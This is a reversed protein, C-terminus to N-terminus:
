RSGGVFAVSGVHMILGKDPSAATDTAVSVLLPLRIGIAMRDRDMPLCSVHLSRMTNHMLHPNNLAKNSDQEHFKGIINSREAM